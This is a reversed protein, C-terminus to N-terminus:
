ARRMATEAPGAALALAADVDLPSGFVPGSAVTCGCGRLFALDGDTRVGNAGVTKGLAQAFAVAAAVSEDLQELLFLSLSVHRFPQSALALMPNGGAGFGSLSLGVGLATLGALIGPMANPDVALSTEDIALDLRDAALRSRDLIEGLIDILDPQILLESCLPVSIRLPHQWTGAIHCADRLLRESLEGSFRSAAAAAFRDASHPLAVGLLPRDLSDFLCAEFGVLCDETLSRQPILRLALRDHDLDRRLAKAGERRAEFCSDLDGGGNAIHAVATGTQVHLSQDAARLLSEADGGSDPFTALGARCKLGVTSGAASLSRGSRSILRAAEAEFDSTEGPQPLVLAFSADDYRSLVCSEPVMGGLRIALLRLVSDRVLGGFEDGIDTLNAVRILIVGVRRKDRKAGRIQASLIQQLANRNPLGTLEDLLSLRDLREEAATAHTVDIGVSLVRQVRGKADFMAARTTMFTRSRGDADVLAESGLHSVAAGNALRRDEADIPQGLEAGLLDAATQGVAAEPAIGFVEAQYANIFEYTGDPTKASVMAPIGALVAELLAQSEKATRDAKLRESADLMAFICIVDDGFLHATAHVEVPFASADRRLARRRNGGLTVQPSGSEPGDVVAMTLGPLVAALPRDLLEVESVGIVDRAHQSTMVIRGTRDTAVVLVPFHGIVRELTHITDYLSALTLGTM